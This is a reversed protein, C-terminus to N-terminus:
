RTARRALVLLSAGFILLALITVIGGSVFGGTAFVVAAAAGFSFSLGGFLASYLAIFIAAVDDSLIRTLM